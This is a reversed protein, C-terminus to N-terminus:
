ASANAIYNLCDKKLPSSKETNSIISFLTGSPDTGQFGYESQQRTELRELVKAEAHLTYHTLRAMEKPAPLLNTGSWTNMALRHTYMSGTGMDAFGFKPLMLNTAFGIKEFWRTTSDLDNVKLHLHAIFAGIGLPATSDLGLGLSLEAAPNLLTRGNHPRGKKDYLLLGQSMEGFRGFREPTELTIEIELGDPDEFYIAKSMLHDVLSLNLNIDVLRALLRSFEAQDPVGMAVHYMGLYRPSVSVLAGSKLRFLTKEATGLSVSMKDQHRVHLGLATTWFETSVSLNTVQMEIVGWSLREPLGKKVNKEALTLANTKM